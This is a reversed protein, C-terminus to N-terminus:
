IKKLEEEYEEEEAAGAQLVDFIKNGFDQPWTNRYLYFCADDSFDIETHQKAYEEMKEGGLKRGDRVIENWNSVTLGSWGKVVRKLYDRDVKDQNSQNKRFGGGESQNLKAFVARYEKIPLVRVKLSFKPGSEDAQCVYVDVLNDDIDELELGDPLFSM